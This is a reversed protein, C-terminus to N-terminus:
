TSSGAGKAHAAEQVAREANLNNPSLLLAIVRAQPALKSPLELREPL